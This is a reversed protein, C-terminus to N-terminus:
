SVQAEGLGLEIMDLSKQVLGTKEEVVSVQQARESALELSSTLGNLISNHENKLAELGQVVTKSNTMIEEQTMQTMKGICEIKKLDM